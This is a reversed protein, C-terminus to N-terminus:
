ALAAGRYFGKCAQPTVVAQKERPGPKGMKGSGGAAAMLLLCVGCFKNTKIHLGGSVLISHLALALALAIHKTACSCLM